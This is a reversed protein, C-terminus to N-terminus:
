GRVELFREVMGLEGDTLFSEPHYQVGFLPLTRHELSMVVGGATATIKLEPPFDEASVAWSHYRGVAPSKELGRYLLSTTDMNELSSAVGHFVTNLNYLRAGFHEALAQHGLCVGLIPKTVAYRKLLEPMRGADRPLGPGPSLIIKDFAAVAALDVSDNTCVTLEEAHSEEILQVLNWTFSDHNDLLLIKM